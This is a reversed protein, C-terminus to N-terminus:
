LVKLTDIVVYKQGFINKKQGYLNIREHKKVFPVYKGQFFM